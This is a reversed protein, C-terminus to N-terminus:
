VKLEATFIEKEPEKQITDKKARRKSSADEELLLPKRRRSKKKPRELDLDELKESRERTNVSRQIEPLPLDKLDELDQDNFSSVGENTGLRKEMMAAKQALNQEGRLPLSLPEESGFESELYAHFTDGPVEQNYMTPNQTLLQGTSVPVYNGVFNDFEPTNDLDILENGDPVVQAPNVILPQAQIPVPVQPLLQPHPYIGTNAQIQAMPQAYVPAPIIQQPIIQQAQYMERPLPRFFRVPQAQPIAIQKPQALLSYGPNQPDNSGLWSPHVMQSQPYNSSLMKGGTQSNFLKMTESFPNGPNVPGYNPNQRPLVQDGPIRSHPSGGLRWSKPRFYAFHQPSNAPLHKQRFPQNYDIETISPGKPPDLPRSPDIRGSAQTKPPSKKQRSQDSANQAQAQNPRESAELIKTLPLEANSIATM